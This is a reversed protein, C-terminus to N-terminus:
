LANSRFIEARNTLLDLGAVRCRDVRVEDVYNWGSISESGFNLEAAM